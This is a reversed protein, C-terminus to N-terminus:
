GEDLTIVVGDARPKSQCTLVYGADIEKQSLDANEQSV